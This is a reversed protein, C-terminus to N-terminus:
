GMRVRERWGGVVRVRGRGEMVSRDGEWFGDGEWGGIM